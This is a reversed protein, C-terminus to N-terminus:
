KNGYWMEMKATRKPQVRRKADMALMAAVTPTPVIRREKVEEQPMGNHYLFSMKCWNEVDKELPGLERYICNVKELHNPVALSAYSKSIENVFHVGEQDEPGNSIVSYGSVDDIMHEKILMPRGTERHRYLIGNYGDTSKLYDTLCWVLTNVNFEPFRIPEDVEM